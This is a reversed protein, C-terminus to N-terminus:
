SQRWEAWEEVDSARFIRRGGIVAFELEGRRAARDVSWRSTRAREAAAGTTIFEEAREAEDAVMAM